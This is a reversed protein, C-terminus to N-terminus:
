PPAPCKEELGPKFVDSVLGHFCGAINFNRGPGRTTADKISGIGDPMRGFAIHFAEHIFVIARGANDFERWFRECLVVLSDGPCSSAVETGCPGPQCGAILVSRKGPCTYSLGQSILTAVRTYRASTVSLEESLAIERSPRVDGTLRNLFGTGSASPMGFRKQFARLTASPPDRIGGRVTQADAALAQATKTAHDIALKDATELDTRPDAPAGFQNAPCNVAVVRRSLMSATGSHASQQVCHALEHALLAKGTSTTPAYQGAAFVIHNGATYALAGVDRASQAAQPDTHIRIHSTTVL